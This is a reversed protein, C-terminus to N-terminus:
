FGNPATRSGSNSVGIQALTNTKRCYLSTREKWWLQSISPTDNMKKHCSASYSFTSEGESGQITFAATLPEGVKVTTQNLRLEGTIPKMDKMTFLPTSFYQGRGAKDRVFVILSLNPIVTGSQFSENTLIAQNNDKLSVSRSAGYTYVDAISPEDGGSLKWSITHDQGLALTDPIPDFVLQIPNSDVINFHPSSFVKKNGAQDTV